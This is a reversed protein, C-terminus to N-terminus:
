GRRGRRLRGRGRRHGKSGRGAAVVRAAEAGAERGSADVATLLDCVHTTIAFPAAVVRGGRRRRGDGAVVRAEVGGAEGQIRDEGAAVECRQAAAAAAAASLRETRPLGTGRPKETKPLNANCTVRSSLAGISSNNVHADEAKPPPRSSLLRAQPASLFTESHSTTEHTM